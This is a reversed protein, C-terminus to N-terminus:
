KRSERDQEISDAWASMEAIHDREHKELTLLVGLVTTEDATPHQGTKTLDDLTLSRMFAALNTRTEELEARLEPVGMNARKEQQRANYYDNDYDPKLRPKEGKVMLQMLRTMGREAGALHALIERPSYDGARPSANKEDEGFRSLVLDMARRDEELGRDIPELEPLM